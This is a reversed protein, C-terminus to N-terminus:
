LMMPEPLWIDRVSNAFDQVGAYITEGVSHITQPIYGYTLKFPVYGTSACMSSNLAFEVAPLHKLWDLQDPRVLMHMVQSVKRIM